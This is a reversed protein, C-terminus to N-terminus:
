GNLIELVEKVGRTNLVDKEELWARRATAVGYEINELDATSHADPNISLMVGMEKARRCHIWDLDLRNPYANLEVIKGHKKAAELVRGLDLKYGERSLLLRGTAHGLIDFHENAIAKCVRETMEAETMDFRSHVSGIVFDLKGLIEPTLDLNGDPLIDCELGKLIRFDSWKENLRDIEVMQKALRTEDLGNAYAAAKSHDSLGMYTLGMSRAKEAMVEIQASGDSWTSHTHFVGKLSKSEILQFTASYDLEGTNERM